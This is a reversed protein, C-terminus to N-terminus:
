ARQLLRQFFEGGQDTCFKKVKKGTEIAVSKHWMKFKGFAEAKERIFYVWMKRSFDDVLLMFYFSGGLATTSM